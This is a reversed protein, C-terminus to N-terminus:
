PTNSDQPSKTARPFQPTPLDTVNDDDETTSLLDLPARLSVCTGGQPRYELMMSGGLHALRERINFLGFGPTPSRLQQPRALFEPRIGIGDDEIDVRIDSNHRTFAVRARGARAHKAVNLLLERIAQFLFVRLDDNLPKAEEDDDVTITLGHQESMQKALSEVAPELGLEFLAPPSLEFTLSRTLGICQDVLDRVEQALVRTDEDRNSAALAGLGIKAAALLQGVNDHLGTAVRRREDQEAQSVKLALSRLQETRETVRQELDDHAKQLAQEAAARKDQLEHEKQQRRYSDYLVSMARCLIELKDQEDQGYGDLRNAVGIMGVVDDGSLLPVGLFANLPPHGEPLRGASRPDRPPENAVVAQKQTIVRGFLNDLSDFEIYGRTKYAEVAGDYLERGRHRDWRIGEHALVRLKNDPSVVGVFGYESATQKLAHSLIDASAQQWNGSRLFQTMADSVTALQDTKLQRNAESQMRKTTDLVNAVFVPSGKFTSAQLHVEAPYTTGDKRRHITDFRVTELEGRRLPDVLRAFASADLLPKLDLPTLERLEDMAYGLNERAGRNVEVFKLTEADFVYVETLSEEVIRGLGTIAAEAATRERIDILSGRVLTHGGASMRVLRVECPIENGETDIHTWQFVPADGEAAERLKQEAAARSERGDPQHPPSLQWPEHALIQERSMKFLQEANRNAEVLQRADIDMVLIAEPAFEIMTRYRQESEAIQRAAAEESRIDRVHVLIAPRGAHEIRNARGSVPISTGDRHLSRSQFETLDGAAVKSFDRQAEDRQDPPVLDLAHQGILADRELGHLDCAAQNVDLVIGEISEVFIADPSNDVLNRFQAEKQQLNAQADRRETIDETMGMIRAPLGDPGPLPIFCSDFLTAEPTGATHFEFRSPVGRRAKELLVSVHRRDAEDVTDLYPKGLIESEESLGCMRLGASNMSLFNGDLDLEHICTPANEVLTRHRRESEELDLRAKRKETVDAVFGEIFQLQGDPGHVGRGREWMWRVAGSKHHIRYETEFPRRQDLAEQVEQWVREQDDPHTKEGCTISRDVLY